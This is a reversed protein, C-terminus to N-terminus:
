SRLLQSEPIEGDGLVALARTIRAAEGELVELALPVLNVLDVLLDGAESQQLTDLHVDEFRALQIKRLAHELPEVHHDSRDV